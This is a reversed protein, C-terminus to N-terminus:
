INVTTMIFSSNTLSQYYYINNNITATLIATGVSYNAVRTSPLYRISYGVVRRSYTVNEIFYNRMM